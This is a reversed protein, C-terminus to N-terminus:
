LLWPRGGERDPLEGTKQRVTKLQEVEEDSLANITDKEDQSLGGPDLAGANELKEVNDM